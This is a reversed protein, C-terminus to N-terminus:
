AGGVIDDQFLALSCARDPTETVTFGSCRLPNVRRGAVGAGRSGASRAVYPCRRTRGDPRCCLQGAAYAARAAYPTRATSAAVEARTRDLPGFGDLRLVRPGAIAPSSRYARPVCGRGRVQRM